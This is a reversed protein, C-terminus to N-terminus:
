FLRNLPLSERHTVRREAALQIFRSIAAIAMHELEVITLSWVSRRDMRSAALWDGIAQAAERTAHAQWEDDTM